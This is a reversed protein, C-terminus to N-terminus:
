GYPGATDISRGVRGHHPGPAPRRRRPGFRPEHEADGTRVRGAARDADRLLRGRGRGSAARAGVRDGPRHNIGHFSALAWRGRRIIEAHGAPVVRAARRSGQLRGDRGIGALGGLGYGAFEVGRFKLTQRAGALAPFSVHEGHQFTRTEGRAIVTVSSRHAVRYGRRTVPQFYTGEEGLPEVGMARLQEAVYSSALGYGETFVQRGQLLDSSLYTLWRRADAERIEALPPTSAPAQAGLHDQVTTGLLGCAATLVAARVWTTETRRM